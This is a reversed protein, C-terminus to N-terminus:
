RDPRLPVALPDAAQPRGRARDPPRAAALGAAVADACARVLSWDRADGAPARMATVVAREATTLLRPELRGPLVWCGRPALLDRLTPVDYPEADPYPPAGIPGSSLLWLPRSRLAAAHATAFARAAPLWAGGYVASGLVVADWSGPDPRNEVPLAAAVLDLGPAAPNGTLDRALAAAIERTAGHRSAVAVLVRVPSM